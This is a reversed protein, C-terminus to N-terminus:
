RPAERLMARGLRGVLPCIKPRLVSTRFQKLCMVPLLFPREIFRVARARGILTLALEWSSRTM